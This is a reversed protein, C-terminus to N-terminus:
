SAIFVIFSRSTASSSSAASAANRGLRQLLEPVLGLRGSTLLTRVVLDSRQEGPDQQQAARDV